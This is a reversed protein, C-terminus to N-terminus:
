REMDLASYDLFCGPHRSNLVNGGFYVRRFPMGSSFTSVPGFLM